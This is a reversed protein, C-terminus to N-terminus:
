PFGPFLHPLVGTRHQPIIDTKATEPKIKDALFIYKSTQFTFAEPRTQLILHLDSFLFIIRAVTVKVLLSKITNGM